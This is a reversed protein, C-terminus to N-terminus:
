SSKEFFLCIFSLNVNERSTRRMIAVEKKEFSFFVGLKEVVSCQV